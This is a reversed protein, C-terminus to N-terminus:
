PQLLVYENTVSEDTMHQFQPTVNRILMGLLLFTDTDVAHTCLSVSETGKKFTFVENGTDNRRYVTIRITEM